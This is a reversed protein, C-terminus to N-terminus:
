LQTAAPKPEALLGEPIAHRVAQLVAAVSIQKMCEVDYVCPKDGESEHIWCPGCPIPVHLNINNSYGLCEPTRSGGFLIVSRVSLGNAGHMLFSDPGIFLDCCSLLALSQRMSCEGAFKIVGEFAPERHDGLHVCDFEAELHALLERWRTEPWNKVPEKSLTCFAIRCRRTATLTEEATAREHAELYMHARFEYEQIGVKSLTELLVNRTAEKRHLTELYWFRLTFFTEPENIAHINPNNRVLEPWKTIMNLRLRPFHERLIRCVTSALITDGPAGFSDILTLEGHCWSLLRLRRLMWANTHWHIKEGLPRWLEFLRSIM